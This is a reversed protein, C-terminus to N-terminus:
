LIVWKSGSPVTVSVGNAINLPGVSMASKNTTITYSTNVFLSTEVIPGFSAVGENTLKNTTKDFTLNASGAFSGADNFQIQTTSGGPSGAGGAITVTIASGTNTATVGAGVFDISTVAANLTVGEDKVTLASGGGTNAKDYAGNAKDYASQASTRAITDTASATALLNTGVGTSADNAIDIYVGRNSGGTEFIRLRNQYIDIAVSGTLSQNTAALSLDIQGGEDGSSQTSKLLASSLLGTTKNFTLSANAGLTGSDNFQVEQNLGAPGTFRQITQITGSPDRYFLKGDFNNIALEGNSLSAPTNGSTTSHKLQIVTNAM